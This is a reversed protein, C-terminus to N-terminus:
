PNTRVGYALKLIGFGIQVPPRGALREAGQKKRMLLRFFAVM